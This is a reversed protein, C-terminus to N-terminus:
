RYVRSSEMISWLATLLIPQYASDRHPRYNLALKFKTAVSYNEYVTYRSLRISTATIFNFMWRCLLHIQHFFAPM